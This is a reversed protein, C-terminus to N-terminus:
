KKKLIKKEPVSKVVPNTSVDSGTVSKESGKQKPVYGDNTTIIEIGKERTVDELSVNANKLSYTKGNYELYPGFKGKKLVLPLGNYNGFSKPYKLLEIAEGLTISDISMGGELSAYKVNGAEKSGSQVIPGYPGIRAIIQNGESDNGIIRLHKSKEKPEERKMTMFHEVKPHFGEYYNKVVDRWPNEGNAVSDLQEELDATYKPVVLDNFHDTMFNDTIKGIDTPFLKGMEKKLSVERSTEKLKGKSSMVLQHMTAKGADRNEKVV